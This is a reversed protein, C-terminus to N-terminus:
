YNKNKKYTNFKKLKLARLRGWTQENCDNKCEDLALKVDKIYEKRFISNDFIDNWFAVIESNGMNELIDYDHTIKELRKITESFNDLNNVGNELIYYYLKGFDTNLFTIRSMKEEVNPLIEPHQIIIYLLVAEDIAINKNQLINTNNSIKNRPGNKLFWYLRNKIDRTYFYKISSNQIKGISSKINQEWAAINEPTKEQLNNYQTVFYRWLFDVFTEANDLLTQFDDQSHNRIFSDPDYDNPLTCFKLSIGPKLFEIALIALREMAKQGAYDGDFCVIPEHCTQWLQQLHTISTATGMSAVATNFGFKHLLIVDLYGEVLIFPRNKVHAIAQHLGYLLDKKQFDLSESSNVYKARSDGKEFIRGGFGVVQGYKTLIPFIIRNKFNFSLKQNEPLLKNIQDINNPCYGIKFKEIIEADLGRNACYRLANKNNLLAQMFYTICQDFYNHHKKEISNNDFQVGAMRALEEVAQVFQLHRSEMIYKVIDGKAGCGFCYYGCKADNVFFSGTKEKHFPCIGVFEAGNHRLKVDRGVVDSLPLRAKIQEVIFRLNTNKQM